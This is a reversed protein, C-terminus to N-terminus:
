AAAALSYLVNSSIYGSSGAARLLRAYAAPLILSGFASSYASLALLSAGFLGGIWSVGLSGGFYILYIILLEPVGRFVTTYADAMLKGWLTKSLHGWAVLWGVAAGILLAAITLLLTMVAGAVLLGGWGNGGFGLTTFLSM